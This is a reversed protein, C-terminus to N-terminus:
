DCDHFTGSYYAQGYDRSACFCYKTGVQNTLTTCVEPIIYACSSSTRDCNSDCDACVGTEGVAWVLIYNCIEGDFGLPCSKDTPDFQECAICSSEDPEDYTCRGGDQTCRSVCERVTVDYTGGGEAPYTYTVNTCCEDDECAECHGNTCNECDEEDCDSDYCCEKCDGDCCVDGNSCEENTDVCFCDSCTQCGSCDDDDDCDAIPPLVCQQWTGDWLMCAGCDPDPCSFCQPVIVGLVLLVVTLVYRLSRDM